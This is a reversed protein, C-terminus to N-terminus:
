RRNKNVVFVLALGSAVAIVADDATVINSIGLSDTSVLVKDKISYKLGETYMIHVSGDFPVISLTRNKLNKFHSTKDIMYVTCYNTYMVASVGNKLARLLLCYNAFAHDDRKGGGGYIEIEHCGKKILYDLGIEGDTMDKDSSYTLVPMNKPLIVRNSDMDGLVISPVIGYLSAWNYAGDACVIYDCDSIKAALKCAPRDGCLLLAAKM